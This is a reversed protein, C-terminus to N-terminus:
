SVYKLGQIFKEVSQVESATLLNLTSAGSAFDEQQTPERNNDTFCAIGFPIINQYTRLMNPHTVIRRGNEVWQGNNWNLSTFFWGNQSERFYMQLTLDTGGPLPITMQQFPADTIGNITQM